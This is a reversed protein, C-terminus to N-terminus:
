IYTDTHNCFDSFPTNGYNNWNYWPDDYFPTNGFTGNNFPTNGYNDWNSWADNYGPEDTHPWLDTHPTSDTHVYSEGSNNDHNSHNNWDTTFVYNSWGPENLYPVNAYNTYDQFTTNGFVGDDFDINDHPINAYNAYNNHSVNKYCGSNDIFYSEGCENTNSWEYCTTNQYSFPPLYDVYYGSIDCHDSYGGCSM